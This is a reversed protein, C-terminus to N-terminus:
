LINVFISDLLFKKSFGMQVDGTGQVISPPPPDQCCQMYSVAGGNGFSSRSLGAPGTVGQGRQTTKSPEKGTYGLPTRLVGDQVQRTSHGARKEKGLSGQHGRSNMEGSAERSKQSKRGGLRKRRIRTDALPRLSRGM